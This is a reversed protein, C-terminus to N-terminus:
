FGARRAYILGGPIASFVPSFNSLFLYLVWHTNFIDKYILPRNWKQRTRNDLKRYIGNQILPNCHSILKIVPNINLNNLTLGEHATINIDLVYHGGTARFHAANLADGCLACHSPNHTHIFSVPLTLHRGDGDEGVQHGVKRKLTAENPAIVTRTDPAAAETPKPTTGKSEPTKAADTANNAPADNTNSWPPDTRPPRSSNQSDANLRERAEKLDSILTVLLKDKHQMRLVRAEDLQQLDSNSLKM